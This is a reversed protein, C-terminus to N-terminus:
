DTDEQEKIVESSTYFLKLRKSVVKYLSVRVKKGRNYDAVSHEKSDGPAIGYLTILKNKLTKGNAKLYTVNVVAEDVPYDSKNTVFVSLNKIGGLVGIGYNSNGAKILKTWHLRAVRAPDEREVAPVPAPTEIIAVPTGATPPLPAPKTVTAPLPANTQAASLSQPSMRHPRDGRTLIFVGALMAICLFSGYLAMPKRQRFDAYRERIAPLVDEPKRIKRPIVIERLGSIKEAPSWMDMGDVRVPTNRTLKQKKLDEITFPGLENRGDHM